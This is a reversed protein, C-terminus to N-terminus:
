ERHIKVSIKDQLTIRYFRLWCYMVGVACYVSTLMLPLFPLRKDLGLLPHVLSNYTELPIICLLYLTEITSCLPLQSLTWPIRYLNGLSYFSYVTYALVICIKIVTEARTFILPFLSYHAVTSLILFIQADKKKDLVLLSLPITVILIAKEHVHWGFMFSGFACLVLCRLFSKPGRPYLWLHILSPMISLITLIFTILPSVSPLVSHRFEQVLGGTMVASSSDTINM